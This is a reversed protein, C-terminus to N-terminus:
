YLALSPNNQLKQYTDLVKRVYAQTEPFAPIRGLKRVIDPGANYAALALSLDGQFADLMLRLYHTGGAINEAPDFPDRVRMDRITEPMLQMLGKAGKRSVALHNFRSEAQIVAKVLLPDVAYKRAARHINKEISRKSTEEGFMPQYRPDTPVNTAHYVGHEDVFTYVAAQTPNLLLSFFLGTAALLYSFRFLAPM